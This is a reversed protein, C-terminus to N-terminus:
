RCCKLTILALPKKDIANQIRQQRSPHPYSRHAISSHIHESVVGQQIDLARIGNFCLTKVGAPCLRLDSSRKQSPIRITDFLQM